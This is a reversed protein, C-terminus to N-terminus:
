FPGKRYVRDMYMELKQQRMQYVHRLCEVNDHCENRLQLWRSQETQIESRTGMPVLRRIINYTTAMKVDADNLILHECIQHETQSQAKSCNFSAAHGGMTLLFSGFIICISLNIKMKNYELNFFLKSLKDRSQLLM